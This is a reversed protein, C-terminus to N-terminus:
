SVLQHLSTILTLVKSKGDSVQNSQKGVLDWDSLIRPRYEPLYEQM